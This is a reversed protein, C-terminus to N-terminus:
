RGDKLAYLAGGMTGVVVMRGAVAPSGVMMARSLQAAWLKRGSVLDAAWVGGDLAVAYARSGSIAVRAAYSGGEGDIAAVRHGDTARVVRLQGGTTQFVVFRGRREWGVPSAYSAEEGVSWRTAGDVPDLGLLAPKGTAVVLLDGTVCPANRGPGSYIMEPFTWTWAIRCAGDVAVLDGAWNPVFVLGARVAPEVSINGSTRVGALVAGAFSVAHIAGDGSAVLLSGGLVAPAAAVAGGLTVTWVLTGDAERFASLSGEEAGAVVMGHVLLPRAMAFGALTVSWVTAGSRADLCFLGAEGATVYVRRGAIVPTGLIDGGLTRTWAVTVGKPMRPADQRPLDGENM